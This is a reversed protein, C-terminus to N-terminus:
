RGKLEIGNERFVRQILPRCCTRPIAVTNGSEGKWIYHGNFRDYTYGNDKLIREIDRLAFGQGHSM